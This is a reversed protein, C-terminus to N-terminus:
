AESVFGQESEADRLLLACSRALQLFLLLRPIRAHARVLSGLSFILSPQLACHLVYSGTAFTWHSLRTEGPRSPM